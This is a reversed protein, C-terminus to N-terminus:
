KTKRKESSLILDNQRETEILFNLLAQDGFAQRYSENFTPATYIAYPKAFGLFIELERKACLWRTRIFERGSYVCYKLDWADLDRTDRGIVILWLQEIFIFLAKAQRKGRIYIM